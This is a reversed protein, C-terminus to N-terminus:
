KARRLYIPCHNWPSFSLVIDNYSLGYLKLFEFLFYHSESGEETGIRKGKLDRPTQIGKEKDAIIRYANDSFGINAFIRFDNREFGALVLPTSRIIAIDIKDGFLDEIIRPTSGYTRLSVRLGEQAFFEKQEAIYVLSSLLSEDLM